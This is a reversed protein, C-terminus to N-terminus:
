VAGAVGAGGRWGRVGSPRFLPHQSCLPFRLHLLQTSFTDATQIEFYFNDPCCYSSIAKSDKGEYTLNGCTLSWWTGLRQNSSIIGAKSSFSFLAYDRSHFLPWHHM